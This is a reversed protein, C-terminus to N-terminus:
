TIPWQCNGQHGEQLHFHTSIDQVYPYPKLPKINTLMKMIENQKLDCIGIFEGKNFIGPQIGSQEQHKKGLTRTNLAAKWLKPIERVVGIWDLFLSQKNLGYQDM